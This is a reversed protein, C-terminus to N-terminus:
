YHASTLQPSDAHLAADPVAAPSLGEVSWSADSFRAWWEGELRSLFADGRHIANLIEPDRSHILAVYGPMGLSCRSKVLERAFRPDLNGSVAIAGNRWATSFLHNLVSRITRQRGGLQLVQAVEGDKVQYLYWGAIDGGANRVVGKRLTGYMQKESVERLLWRWDDGDYVPMLAREGAFHRLCWLLTDEAPEEDLELDTANRLWYRRGWRSRVAAADLARCLPWIATGVRNLIRRRNLLAVAYQSPRLVRTWNLSELLALSGGCGRWLREASENAGDSYSLDQKGGLYARMLQIAAYPVSQEAMLQSAVAVRIRQKRFTMVRPVVGIFGVIGRGPEEYLLSPLDDDRWPNDFFIKKFYDQLPKAARGQVGRFVKLWLDAVEGLDELRCKRVGNM